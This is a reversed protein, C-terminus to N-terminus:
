IRANNILVTTSFAERRGTGDYELEGADLLEFSQDGLPNSNDNFGSNAVLAIRVSKIDIWPTVAGDLLPLGAVTEASVYRQVVTDLQSLQTIDSVGYQLQMNDIGSVLVQANTLVTAVGVSSITFSQCQLSSIGNADDGIFYLNAVVSTAATETDGSLPNGFCDSDTGDDPPPNLMVAIRDSAGDAGDATCPDFAGCAGTFFQGDPIETGARLLDVHGAMRIMGSLEDMAFRANERVRSGADQTSHATRASLLFSMATSIFFASIAVSVMLEILSYGSSLKRRRLSMTM